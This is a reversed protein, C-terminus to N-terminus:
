LDKRPHKEDTASFWLRSFFYPTVMSFLKILKKLKSVCHIKIFYAFRPGELSLTASVLVVFCKDDTDVGLHEHNMVFDLYLFGEIEIYLDPCNLYLEKVQIKRPNPTGSERVVGMM